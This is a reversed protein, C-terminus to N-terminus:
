MTATREWRSQSGDGVRRVEGSDDMARLARVIAADASTSDAFFFSGRRLIRRRIEFLSAAGEAEMLAIRCARTLSALMKRSWGPLPHLAQGTKRRRRSTGNHSNTREMACAPPATQCGNFTANTALHRLGDVMKHLRRIRLNIEIRQTLLDLAQANVRQVTESVASQSAASSQQFPAPRLTNMSSISAPGSCLHNALPIHLRNAPVLVGPVDVPRSSVSLVARRIKRLVSNLLHLFRM